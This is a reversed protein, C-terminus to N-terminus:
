TPLMICAKTYAASGGCGERRTTFHISITQKTATVMLVIGTRRYTNLEAKDTLHGPSVSVFFRCRVSPVSDGEVCAVVIIQMAVSDAQLFKLCLCMVGIVDFCQQM